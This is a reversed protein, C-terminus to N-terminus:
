ENPKTELTIEPSANIIAMHEAEITNLYRYVTGDACTGGPLEKQAILLVALPAYDPIDNRHISVKYQYEPHEWLELPTKMRTTHLTRWKGYYKSESITDHMTASDFAEPTEAVGQWVENVELWEGKSAAIPPKTEATKTRIVSGNKILKYTKM